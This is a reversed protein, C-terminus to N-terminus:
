WFEVVLSRDVISSIRIICFYVNRICLASEACISIMELFETWSIRKCENANKRQKTKVSRACGIKCRTAPLTCIACYVSSSFAIAMLVHNAHFTRQCPISCSQMGKLIQEPEHLCKKNIKKWNIEKIQSIKNKQAIRGRRIFLCLSREWCYCSRWWAPYSNNEWELVRAWIPQNIIVCVWIAGKLHM